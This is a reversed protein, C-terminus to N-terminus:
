PQDPHLFVRLDRGSRRARRHATGTPRSPLTRRRRSRSDASVQTIDLRVRRILLSTKAPWWDPRYDAVAVQASDMDIAEAWDTEAIGALMRWLPAIRKAGIAFSVGEFLAARALEGAFYGADARLAVRGAWAREPLARLARRFLDAVSARPDDNGALLEAAWTTEVEAWTAVHPRGSRQGHYNYEVGRKQRGYVEVDTADIDITVPGDLLATVRAGPLMSVMRETVVAVGTEVMRWQEATIRRALGAATTSCLGAVPTIRQGAADDRQRDLGSLFDEGALQAAAIGTLLEGAGYGRDRQKIPGVATDLSEILGLGDVLETIAVMGSVPTLTPDPAGIRVQRRVRYKDRVRGM